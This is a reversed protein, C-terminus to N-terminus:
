IVIFKIIRFFIIFLDLVEYHIRIINTVIYM